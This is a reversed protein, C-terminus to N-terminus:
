VKGSLYQINGPLGNETLLQAKIISHLQTIHYHLNLITNHLPSMVNGQWVGERHNGLALPEHCNSVPTVLSQEFQHSLQPWAPVTSLKDM